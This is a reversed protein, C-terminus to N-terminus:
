SIFICYSGAGQVNRQEQATFVEEASMKFSKLTQVETLIDIASFNEITQKIAM